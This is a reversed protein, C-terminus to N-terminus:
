VPKPNCQTDFTVKGPFTGAHYYMVVDVDRDVDTNTTYRIYYSTAPCVKPQETTLARIENGQSSLEGSSGNAINKTNSEKIWIITITSWTNVNNETM